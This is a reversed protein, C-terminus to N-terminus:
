VVIEPQVMDSEKTKNKSQLLPITQFLKHGELFLLNQNLVLGCSKKSRGSFIVPDEVPTTYRRRPDFFDLFATNLLFISNRSPCYNYYIVYVTVAPM